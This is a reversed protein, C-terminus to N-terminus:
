YALPVVVAVGASKEICVASTSGLLTRAVAGRGRSGVVLLGDSGAADLLARSPSLRSLSATVEVAGASGARAKEAVDEVFAGNADDDFVTEVGSLPVAYVVHLPVSRRNAEAAAWRVAAAAHDSGDTGVVVRSAYGDVHAARPVVAVPCRAHRVVEHSVSGLVARGIPGTGHRGVVALEAEASERVLAKGPPGDVVRAEVDSGAVEEVLRALAPLREARRERAVPSDRLPEYVAPGAHIAVVRSRHVLGEAAAWALATRSDQSFDVGVVIVVVM